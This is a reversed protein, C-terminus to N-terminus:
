TVPSHAVSFELRMESPVKKKVLASQTSDAELLLCLRRVISSFNEGAKTQLLSEFAYFIWVVEM